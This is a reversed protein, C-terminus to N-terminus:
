LTALMNTALFRADRVNTAGTKSNSRFRYENISTVSPILSL